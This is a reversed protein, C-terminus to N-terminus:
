SPLSFLIGVAAAIVIWIVPHVKKFRLMLPLLVCFLIAEKVRLRNGNFLAIKYVQVGAYAILAIVAARLGYFSRRVWVNDKFRDLVHAIILIIIISPTVLGLTATVGGLIGSVKTGCYTAMNIGIPGPTSESVAVMTSIDGYSIWDPHVDSLRFLFPLTAMGGGIAFLGIKFFEAYLILFTMEDEGKKAGDLSFLCHGM